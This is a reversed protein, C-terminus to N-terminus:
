IGFDRLVTFWEPPDILTTEYRQPHRRWNMLWLTQDDDTLRMSLLERFSRSTEYSFDRWAGSPGVIQCGAIYVINEQVVREIARLDLNRLHFLNIKGKADFRWPRSPDYRHDDRCYGFDLWAAQPAQIVGLEVATQVFCAKLGTVVDYRPHSFEPLHPRSVFRRFAPDDMVRRVATEAEVVSALGFLSPVTLVTTPASPARRQRSSTIRDAHAEDCLVVLHNKIGALKDFYAFYQDNSRLHAKDEWAGRGTDFFAAVLAVDTAAAGTPSPAHFHVRFYPALSVPLEAVNERIPRPPRKTRALLGQLVRKIRVQLKM